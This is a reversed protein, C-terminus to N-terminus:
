VRAPGRARIFDDFAFMKAYVGPRNCQACGLGFSVVGAQIWIGNGISSPKPFCHVTCPDWDRTILSGGCVHGSAGMQIYLQWPWAGERAASGGVIRNGLPPQGCASKM